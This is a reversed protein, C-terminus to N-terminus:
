LWVWTISETAQRYTDPLGRTAAKAAWGNVVEIRAQLGRSIDAALAQARLAEALFAEVQEPFGELLEPRYWTEDCVLDLQRGPDSYFPKTQFAYVGRGVDRNSLHCWLSSGTDFIPAYRCEQTEVNRIIGFNGWHRDTNALISDCVLMRDLQNGAGAVGLSEAMQCYHRYESIENRRKRLNVVYWAPIFEEEESLFSPCACVDRGRWQALRYEVFRHAPLLRRHLMTAVVENYVERGGVGNGKILCPRGDEVIWRKDLMGDTTNDPSNLGVANMWISSSSVPRGQADLPGLDFRNRFYTIDEWTLDSSDELLWYQDSLSLGLSALPIQSPAKLDLELLRQSLFTRSEPIARNGWWANFARRLNHVAQYGVLALPAHQCDILEVQTFTLQIPDYVCRAVEYNRSMLTFKRPSAYRRAQSEMRSPRGNKAQAAYRDLSAQDVEWARGCKEAAIQGNAILQRIRAESVDLYEAAQKTSLM